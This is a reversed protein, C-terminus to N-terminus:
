WIIVLCCGLNGQPGDFTVLFTASTVWCMNAMKTSVVLLGGGGGQGGLCRPGGRGGIIHQLVYNTFPSRCLPGWLGVLSLIKRKKEKLSPLNLSTTQRHAILPRCNMYSRRRNATLQRKNTTLWKCNTYWM